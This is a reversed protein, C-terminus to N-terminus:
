LGRRVLERKVWREQGDPPCAAHLIEALLGHYLEWFWKDWDGPSGFRISPMAPMSAAYTSM